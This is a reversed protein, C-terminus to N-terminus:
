IMVHQESLRVSWLGLWLYTHDFWEGAEAPQRKTWGVRASVLLPWRASTKVQWGAPVQKRLTREVQTPGLGVTALWLAAVAACAILLGRNRRGV